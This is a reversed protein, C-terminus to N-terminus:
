IFCWFFIHIQLYTRPSFFTITFFFFIFYLTFSPTFSLFFLLSLLFSHIFSPSFSPLFSFPFSIIWVIKSFKAVYYFLCISTNKPNNSPTSFSSLWEIFIITSFTGLSPFSISMLTLLGILFIYVYVSFSQM